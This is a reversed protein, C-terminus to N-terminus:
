KKLEKKEVLDRQPGLLGIEEASNMAALRLAKKIDGRYIELGAVFGSGFADGAGTTDTIHTKRLAKQYYFKKGDYLHAGAAGETMLFYNPGWGQILAMLKEKDTTVGLFPRALDAAEDSNLILVDTKPFYKGIGEKGAKLQAGGPNWAIRHKRLSFIKRLMKQWDGSQSSIYLWQANRIARAEKDRIVLSGNAGRYTLIAHEHGPGIALVSYGSKEHKYRQCLSIDAGRKKLNDLISAGIADGGVAMIPMALLGMSAFSAATNAAGGGYFHHVSTVLTKGGFHFGIYEHGTAPHKFMEGGDVYVYVDQTCGGISVFTKKM